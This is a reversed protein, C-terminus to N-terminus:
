QRLNEDSAPVFHNWTLMTLTHTAAYAPPTKTALIGALGATAVAATHLVTRRSIGRPSPLCSAHTQM